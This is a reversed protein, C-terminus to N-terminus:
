ERSPKTAGLLRAYGQAIRSATEPGVSFIEGYQPKEKGYAYPPEVDWQSKPLIYGLEDNALGIVFKFQGQMLERLAPESPANPYDAGPDQPTQIGGIALESYLEGPITIFQAPGLTMVNLETRLNAGMRYPLGKILDALPGINTKLRAFWDRLVPDQELHLAVTETRTDVSGDTYLPRLGAETAMQLRFLPNGVPLDITEVIADLHDIPVPQASKLAAVAIRGASRGIQEAHAFTKRPVEAGTSEDHLHVGLPGLLGGVTGSLYITIGGLAAEAEAIAYAPFDATIETNDGGLAEPHSHWLLISGIPQQDEARQAHMIHITDHIVRPLRSDDILEPTRAEAFRLQAREAQDAAAAVVRIITERVHRMYEPDVGSIPLTPGWIGITDPGEHNHTSCIIVHLDALDPRSAKLQERCALVDPYSYGIFDLAVIAVRTHGREIVMARAYLDDHIRTARRGTSFGAMWVPGSTADVQPTVVAKAVGIRLEESRSPVASGAVAVISLVIGARAALANCSRVM